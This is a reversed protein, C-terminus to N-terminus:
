GQSDTNASAPAKAEHAVDWLQGRAVGIDVFRSKTGPENWVTSETRKANRVAKAIARERAGSRPLEQQWKAIESQLWGSARPGLKVPAPFTGQAVRSYIETHGLGTVRRLEPLRIIVEVM